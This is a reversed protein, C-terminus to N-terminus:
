NDNNAEHDNDGKNTLKNYCDIEIRGQMTILETKKNVTDFMMAAIHNNYERRETRYAESIVKFLEVPYSYVGDADFSSGLLEVKRSEKLLEGTPSYTQIYCLGDLFALRVEAANDLPIEEIAELFEAAKTIVAPKEHHRM